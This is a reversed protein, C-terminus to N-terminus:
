HFPQTQTRPTCAPSKRCCTGRSQFQHPTGHQRWPEVKSEPAHSHPLRGSGSRRKILEPGRADKIPPHLTVIPGSWAHGVTCAMGRDLLAGFVRRWSAPVTPMRRTRLRDAWSSGAALSFFRGHKNLTPPPHDTTYSPECSPSNHRSCPLGFDRHRNSTHPTEYTRSKMGHSRTSGSVTWSRAMTAFHNRGTSYDTTTTPPKGTLDHVTFVVKVSVQTTCAASRLHHRALRQNRGMPDHESDFLRDEDDPAETFNDDTQEHIPLVVEVAAAASHVDDRFRSYCCSRSRHWDQPSDRPRSRHM